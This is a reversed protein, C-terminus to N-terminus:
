KNSYREVTLHNCYIRLDIIIEYDFKNVRVGIVAYLVSDMPQM